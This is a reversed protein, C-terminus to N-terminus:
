KYNGVAVYGTRAFDCLSIECIERTDEHFNKNYREVVNAIKYIWRDIDAVSLYAMLKARSDISKM